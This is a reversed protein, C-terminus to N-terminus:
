MWRPLVQWALWTLVIWAAILCLALAAQKLRTM